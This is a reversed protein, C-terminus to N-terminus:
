WQRRREHVARSAYMGEGVRRWGAATFGFRAVEADAEPPRFVSAAYATSLAVLRDAAQVVMLGVGGEVVEAMVVYPVGAAEAEAVEGEGWHGAHLFEM